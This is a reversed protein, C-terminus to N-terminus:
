HTPLSLLKEHYRQAEKINKEVCFGNELCQIYLEIAERNNNDAAAKLYYVFKEEDEKKAIKKLLYKAYTLQAEGIHDDAGSQVLVAGQSEKGNELLLVGLMFKAVPNNQSVALSYYKIANEIDGKEKCDEAVSLQAHVFGNDAAMKFYRNALDVESVNECSCERKYKGQKLCFGLFYEAESSGSDAAMKLYKYSLSSDSEVGIGQDYLKSLSMQAHHNGGNAAREFYPLASRIDGENLYIVGLNFESDHNKQNASLIFYKRAETPNKRVGFGDRLCKAYEAQAAALGRDAADKFYFASKRENGNKDTTGLSDRYMEGAKFQSQVHGQEAALEFYHLAEKPDIQTGKGTLYCLGVNYQSNANGSDASLKFYHAAKSEDKTVCDSKGLLLWLGYVYQAENLGFDASSKLYAAAKTLEEPSADKKQSIEIALQLYSKAEDETQCSIM